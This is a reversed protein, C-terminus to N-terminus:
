AQCTSQSETRVRSNRAHLMYAHESPAILLNIAVCLVYGLIAHM